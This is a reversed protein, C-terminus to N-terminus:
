VLGRAETDLEPSGGIFITNEQKFGASKYLVSGTFARFFTSNFKEISKNGSSGFQIKYIRAQFLSGLFGLM